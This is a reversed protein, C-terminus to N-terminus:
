TFSPAEKPLRTVWSRTCSYRAEIFPARLKPPRDVGSDNAMRYMDMCRTVLAVISRSPRWFQSHSQRPNEWSTTHAWTRTTRPCRPSISMAARFVSNGLLLLGPLFLFPFPHRWGSPGLEGGAVLCPPRALYFFCNYCSHPM